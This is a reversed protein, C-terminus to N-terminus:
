RRRPSCDAVWCRSHAPRDAPPLRLVPPISTPRISAAMDARLRRVGAVARQRQERARGALAVREPEDAEPAHEGIAAPPDGVEAGVRRDGLDGTRTGRQARVRDDQAREVRRAQRRVGLREGAEAAPVVRDERAAAHGGVERLSEPHVAGRAIRQDGRRASACACACHSMPGPPPAFRADVSAPGSSTSFSPPPM